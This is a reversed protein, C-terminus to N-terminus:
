YVGWFDLIIFGNLILSKKERFSNGNRIGGTRTQHKEKGTEDRDSGVILRTSNSRRQPM